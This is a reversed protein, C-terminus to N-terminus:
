VYYIKIFGEKACENKKNQIEVYTAVSSSASSRFWMLSSLCGGEGGEESLKIKICELQLKFGNMIYHFDVYYGGYQTSSSLLEYYYYYYVYNIGPQVCVNRFLDCVAHNM